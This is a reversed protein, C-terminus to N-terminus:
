HVISFGKQILINVSKVFENEKGSVYTYEVIKKAQLCACMHDSM